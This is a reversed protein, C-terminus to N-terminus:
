RLASPDDGDSQRKAKWVSGLYARTIQLREHGLERSILQRAEVDTEWQKPTLHTPGGASPPKHGTLEELRTQAYMHRLGHKRDLGAKRTRYEFKALYEVYSLEPPILSGRGAVLVSREIVERQEDTRVAIARARGGKTWSPKLNVQCIVGEADRAIAYDPRWKLSEERRLGLVRQLELSVRMREAYPGDVRALIAASLSKARSGSYVQRSGIGYHVNSGAMVHAAGVKRAWWRLVAMRNKLTGTAIGQRQWLDVLKLVHRGKLDTARMKRYGLEALQDAMMRLIRKREAKMGESGDRNFRTLQMLDYTLDRM